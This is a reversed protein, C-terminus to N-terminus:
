QCLNIATLDQRLSNSRLDPLIVGLATNFDQCQLRYCGLVAVLARTKNLGTTFVGSM